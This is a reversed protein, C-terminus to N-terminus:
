NNNKEHELVKVGLEKAIKVTNDSSCDDCVIIEDVYEKPLDNITKALTQEANYAPMIVIIKKEDIM